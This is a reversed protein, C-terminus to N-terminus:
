VPCSEGASLDFAQRTISLHLNEKVTKMADRLHTLQQQTHQSHERYEDISASVMSVVSMLDDVPYDSHM